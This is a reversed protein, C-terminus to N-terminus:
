KRVKLSCICLEALLCVTCIIVIARLKWTRKILSFIFIYIIVKVESGEVRVMAKKWQINDEIKAAKEPNRTRIKEIRKARKEAKELLRKYDKGAFKDRKDIKPTKQFFRM